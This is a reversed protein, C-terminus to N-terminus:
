ARVGEMRRGNSDVIWHESSVAAVAAEDVDVGIGPRDPVILDGGAEELPTSLLSNAVGFLDGQFEQPLSIKLAAAVQWTAAVGVGTSVGVHAAVPIDHEAAMEAIQMTNTIGCRMVDPQAISLARRRFWPEFELPTRLVEGVAIPVTTQRVLEAHGEVDQPHLPAELWAGQLEELMRCLYAASVLDCSWLADIAFLRDRGFVARVARAEEEVKRVDSGTFVKVGGFGRAYFDNAAAVKEDLTKKRLGSVYSSLRAGKPGGLLASIPAGQVKGRIDWLATDLGAIADVLFSGFHGRPLMLGYMRQNLAAIEDANQGLLSPGLLTTMLTATTEPTIPSQAEGWGFTGDALTIKALCSETARSYAQSWQPEIYYDTGPLRGPTEEHGAIKYHHAIKVTFVDIQQITNM